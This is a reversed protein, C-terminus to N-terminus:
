VYFLQATAPPLPTMKDGPCLSCLDLCIFDETERQRERESESERERERERERKRGKEREKERERM